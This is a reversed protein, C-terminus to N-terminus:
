LDPDTVITFGHNSDTLATWINADYGTANAPIYVRNTGAARNAYGTSSTSTGFTHTSTGTSGTPAVLAHIRITSVRLDATFTSSGFSTVNAGIEITELATCNRFCGTVNISTIADSIVISELTNAGNFIVGSPWAGTWSYKIDYNGSAPGLTKLKTCGKVADAGISIVSAPITIGTLETCYIFANPGIGTVSSPISVSPVNASIVISHTSKDIVISGDSEIYPNNADVEIRGISNYPIPRTYSAACYESLVLTCGDAFGRHAANTNINDPLFGLGGVTLKTLKTSGINGYNNYFCQQAGTFKPIYLEKLNDCGSFSALGGISTLNPLSLTTLGCNRFGNYIGTINDANITPFITGYFCDNDIYTMTAPLVLSSLKNCNYFGYAPSITVGTFYQFEEFHTINSRQAYFISATQGGTPNLDESIFTRAETKSIYNNNFVKQGRTAVLSGNEGYANWFADMIPGNESRLVAIEGSKAAISKSTECVQTTVGNITKYLKYTLTGSAYVFTADIRHLVCMNKTHSDIQFYTTIDGTLEWAHTTQGTFEGDVTATYTSDDSIAADGNITVDNDSPYTRRKITITKTITESGKSVDDFTYVGTIIASSDAADNLTTTLIGTLRDITVGARQTSVEYHITGPYPTICAFVYQANDGENVEDPGSLFSLPSLSRIWLDNSQEFCRPGYAEMLQTAQEETTLDSVLVQGKLKLDGIASFDLLQQVTLGEWAVNDIHVSCESSPTTKNSFWTTFQVPSASFIPTNVVEIQSINAGNGELSLTVLRNLNSLNLSRLSSPLYLTTIPAADPLKVATLYTSGRLDVQKLYGNESFDLSKDIMGTSTVKCMVFKELYKIKELGEVKTMVTNATSSQTSVVVEAINSDFIDSNVKTFDIEELHHSMNSLDIKKAYVMNQLYMSGGVYYDATMAFQLEVDETGVYTIEEGQTGMRYGFIQGTVAPTVGIYEGASHTGTHPKMQLFSNKYQGTRNKADYIAFRNSLWWARHTRRAGQLKALQNYSDIRDLWVGIYKFNYDYNHLREPWQSSQKVNFMEIVKPYTLGADYLAQDVIRVVAMFDEDAELNNWLVSAHGAYAYSGAGGDNTQRDIDYGFRLDGANSLGNITDNDYNIYFWHAHPNTTTADLAADECTFMANKVTQDVAGFRMLFIYYAAIKYVDLHDWKEESFKEMLDEDDVVMQGDQVKSAGKTSNIWECVDYLADNARTGEGVTTVDDEHDDPYRAEFSDQWGGHTAGADWDSLDVFQNIDYDGNVVEWCQVNSKIINENEDEELIFDYGPVDCFGFVSETSKDNNWNYKGLFQLPSAATQRYFLAIPFGDVTTRVDYTYGNDMAAQQVMTRCPYQTDRYYRADVSAVRANKMVDNWLRAIGTNHTSSSEAYDAKLCFTKVPQSGDKFSYKRNKGTLENGQYDFMRTTYAPVDGDASDKQLYFRFNKRPYDMSSTGQCRLSFDQLTMNKTPDAYNIVELKECKVYTGKDDRTFHQLRDVDGTIVIVPMQAAVKELDPQDITAGEIDNRNYTELLEDVTPRYLMYNNLVESMDLARNYFRMYKIVITADASGVFSLNTNSRFSDSDAYPVAGSLIGDIYIFVLKLNRVGSVQNIVFAIRTSEGAKFKTSVSAGGASSISAESATILLGTGNSRLDCIVADDDLVHRTEFEFELTLGTNKAEQKMPGNNFSLSAGAPIVLGDETWGSQKTWLFGSFTAIYDGYSWSSKNSSQNTRDKGSFAMTLGNTIEEIDFQSQTVVANFALETEGLVFSLAKTGYTYPRIDYAYEVGNEVSFTQTTGDFTIALSHNNRPSFIAYRVTKGTYQEIGTLSIPQTLPHENVGSESPITFATVITDTTIYGNSVIFDRWLVDSYFRVGNEVEVYARCQLNHRGNDLGLAYIDIRKTRTISPATVVDVDPDLPLDEGDIYWELYKTGSGILTFPIEMFTGAIDSRYVTSIDMVDTLTLKVANFTVGVTTAALTNQGVIGITIINVGEKLYEDINMVFTTSQTATRNVKQIASGNRITITVNLNEGTPIGAKNVVSFDAKIEHGLSGFSIYNVVPTDVLEIVASYESPVDLATILLDTHAMPDELYLNANEEDAFVLVRNNDTDPYFYGARGEFQKKIYEQVRSGLYDQWDVHKDAIEIDIRKAM